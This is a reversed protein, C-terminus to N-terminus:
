QDKVMVQLVELVVVIHPQKWYVGNDFDETQLSMSDSLRCISTDVAIWHSCSKPTLTGTQPSRIRLCM